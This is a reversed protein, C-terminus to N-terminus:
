TFIGGAISGHRAGRPVAWISSSTYTLLSNLQDNASLAQQVPVFQAAPDRVFAVFLLGADHRHDHDPATHDHAMTADHAAHDSHDMGQGASSAPAPGVGPLVGNDFSYGRRLMGPGALKAVRAHADPAIVPQGSADVANLDMPTFEDGGTLPAGTDRRRGITADQEAQSLQDWALLHMRIRRVAMYTGGIMWDPGDGPRLWVLDDFEATGPRPNATGDVQGFLNRPTENGGAGPLFGAQMWRLEARGTGTRRLQRVAHSVVTPDDGCVQVVVDGGNWADELADGPFAPLAVLGAPRSAAPACRDDFFGPAFGFTLTLRAPGAGTAEGTDGDVTRGACLAEALDTWEGLLHEVPMQERRTVDFSAMMLHRQPVTAIGPQRDARFPVAAAAESRAPSEADSQLVQSIGAGGALGVVGVVGGKLLSRRDV